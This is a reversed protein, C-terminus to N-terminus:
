DKSKHPMGYIHCGLTKISIITTTIKMKMNMSNFFCKLKWANQGLRECTLYKKM